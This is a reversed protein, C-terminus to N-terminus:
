CQRNAIINSDRALDFATISKREIPQGQESGTHTDIFHISDKKAAVLTRDDDLIRLSIYDDYKESKKIQLIPINQSMSKLQSELVSNEVLNREYKTSLTQFNQFAELSDFIANIAGPKGLSAQQRRNSFITASNISETSLGKNFAFSSVLLYGPKWTAQPM